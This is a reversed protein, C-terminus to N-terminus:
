RLSVSKLKHDILDNKTQHNQHRNSVVLKQQNQVQFDHIVASWHGVSSKQFPPFGCSCLWTHKQFFINWTTTFFFPYFFFFRRKPDTESKM